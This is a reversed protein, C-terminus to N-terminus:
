RAQGADQSNRLVAQRYDEWRKIMIEALALKDETSWSQWLEEEGEYREPYTVYAGNITSDHGSSIEGTGNIGIFGGAQGNVTEGSPLTITNPDINTDHLTHTTM